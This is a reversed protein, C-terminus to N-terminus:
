YPLCRAALVHEILPVMEKFLATYQPPAYKMWRAMFSTSYHYTIKPDQYLQSLYFCGTSVLCFVHQTREAWASFLVEVAISKQAGHDLLTYCLGLADLRAKTLSISTASQSPHPKLLFHFGHPDSLVTLVHDIYASWFASPVNYMDLAEMLILVYPKDHTSSPTGPDVGSAHLLEQAIPRLDSPVNLPLIRDNPLGQAALYRKFPEAFLAHLPGIQEGNRLIYIYDGQGHEFFLCESGPFEQMLPTPMYTETHAHILLTTGTPVYPGIMARLINRYRIDRKREFRRLMAHYFPRILATNKWKRTLRKRLGPEFRHDDPVRLSFSHVFAWQHMRAAELILRVVEDRRTGIDVLLIDIHEPRHTAKAHLTLFVSSIHSTAIFVRVRKAPDDMM